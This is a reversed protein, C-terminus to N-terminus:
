CKAVKKEQDPTQLWHYMEHGFLTRLNFIVNIEVPSVFNQLNLFDIYVDSINNMNIKM